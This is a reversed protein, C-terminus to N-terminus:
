PTICHKRYLQLRCLQLRCLEATMRQKGKVARLAAASISRGPALM